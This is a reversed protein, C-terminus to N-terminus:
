NSPLPTVVRFFQVTQNTAPAPVDVSITAASDFCPIPNVVPTITWTNTNNNLGTVEQLYYNNGAVLNNISVTITAGNPQISTIVPSPTGLAAQAIATASLTANSASGASALLDNAGSLSSVQSGSVAASAGSNVVFGGVTGDAKRTDLLVITWKGSTPYLCASYQVAQFKCGGNLAEANAAIVNNVPDVLSGNMRVGQFPANTKLYVLLYTEGNLVLSGDKYYDPGPTSITMSLTSLSQGFVSGVLALGLFMAILKKM